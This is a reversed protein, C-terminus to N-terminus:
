SEGAFWNALFGFPVRGPLLVSAVPGAAVDRADVVVVESADRRADFVFNLLWGVDVASGARERAFV